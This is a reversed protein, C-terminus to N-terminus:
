LSKVWWQPPPEHRGSVIRVPPPIRYRYQKFWFTISRQLRMLLDSLNLPTVVCQYLPCGGYFFGSVKFSVKPILDSNEGAEAMLSDDTILHVDASQRQEKSGPGIDVTSMVVKGVTRDTNSKLWLDALYNPVKVLWVGDKARSTDVPHLAHAEILGDTSGSGSASM